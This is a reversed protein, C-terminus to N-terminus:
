LMNLQFSVSPCKISLLLFISFIFIFFFFVQFMDLVNNIMVQQHCSMNVMLYNFM